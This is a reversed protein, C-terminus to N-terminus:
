FTDVTDSYSGVVQVVMGVQEVAFVANNVEVVAFEVLNNVRSKKQSLLDVSEIADAKAILGDIFKQALKENTIREMTEPRKDNQM